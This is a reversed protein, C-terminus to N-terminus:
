WVCCLDWLVDADESDVPTVERERLPPLVTNKNNTNSELPERLKREEVEKLVWHTYPSAHVLQIKILVCSDKIPVTHWKTTEEVRPVVLEVEKWPRKRTKPGFKTVELIKITVPVEVESPVDWNWDVTSVKPVWANSSSDYELRSKFTTEVSTITISWQQKLSLGEVLIEAVSLSSPDFDDPRPVLYPPTLMLVECNAGARQLIASDVVVGRLELLSRTEAVISSASPLPAPPVRPRATVKYFSDDCMKRLVVMTILGTKLVDWRLLVGYQLSLFGMKLKIVSRTEVFEDTHFALKAKKRKMNASKTTTPVVPPQQGHNDGMAVQTLLEMKQRLKDLCEEKNWACVEKGPTDGKGKDKQLKCNDDLFTPPPALQVQNALLDLKTYDDMRMSSTEHDMHPAANEKLASMDVVQRKSPPKVLVPSRRLSLKPRRRKHPTPPLATPASQVSGGGSNTRLTSVDTGTFLSSGSSSRMPTPVIVPLTTSSDGSELTSPTDPRPPREYQQQQTQEQLLSSLFEDHLTVYDKSHFDEKPQEDVKPIIGGTNGKLLENAERFVRERAREDCALLDFSHELTQDLVALFSKPVTASSGNNNTTATTDICGWSPEAVSSSSNTCDVVGGVEESAM